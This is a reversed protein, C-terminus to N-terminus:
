ADARPLGLVREALINKQIEATGAAITRSRSRLVRVAPLRPCARPRVRAVTSRLLNLHGGANLTSREHGLTTMAVEWGRNLPGLLNDTPIRVDTLFDENFGSAGSLQRIPRVEVGTTRLDLLFASIGRHKPANPDTRALLLMWDSYHAGSTWIKQGNIVWMDGDRVASAQLSAM